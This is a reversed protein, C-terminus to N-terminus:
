LGHSYKISDAQSPMVKRILQMVSSHPAIHYSNHTGILQIQNLALLNDTSNIAHSQLTIQITNSLNLGKNIAIKNGDDSIWIPMNPSISQVRNLWVKDPSLEPSKFSYIYNNNSEIFTGKILEASNPSYVSLCLLLFILLQRM